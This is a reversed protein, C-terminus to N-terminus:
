KINSRFHEQAFKGLNYMRQRQITNYKSRIPKKPGSEIMDQYIKLIKETPKSLCALITAVKPSFEGRFNRCLGTFLKQDNELLHSGTIGNELEILDGRKLTLGQNSEPVEDSPNVDDLAVCYRSRKKLNTIMFNVLEEVDKAEYCKFTFNEKQATEIVLMDITTNEDSKSLVKSIEAYSLEALIQETEDVFYVANSNVAIVIQDTLLKPGDTRVAEYFRSFLMPWTLHAYLCIDEIATQRPARQKVYVNNIFAERILTTWSQHAKDGAILLDKPVSNTIFDGLLQFHILPIFM